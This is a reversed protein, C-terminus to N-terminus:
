LIVDWVMLYADHSDFIKRTNAGQKGTDRHSVCQSVFVATPAAIFITM